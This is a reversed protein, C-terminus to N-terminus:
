LQNVGGRWVRRCSQRTQTADAEATHVPNGVVRSQRRCFIRLRFVNTAITWNVGACWVRHLCSRKTKDPQCHSNPMISSGFLKTCRLCKTWGANQLATATKIFEQAFLRIPNACSVRRGPVAVQHTVKLICLISVLRRIWDHSILIVGYGLEDYCVLSGDKRRKQFKLVLLSFLLCGPFYFLCM